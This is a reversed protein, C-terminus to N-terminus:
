KLLGKDVDRKIPMMAINKTLKMSRTFSAKLPLSLFRETQNRISKEVTNSTKEYV